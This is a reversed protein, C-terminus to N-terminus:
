GNLDGLLGSTWENSYTQTLIVAEEQIIKVRWREAERDEKARTKVDDIIWAKCWEASETLRCEKYRAIPIKYERIYETGIMDGLWQGNILKKDITVGTVTWILDTNTKTFNSTLDFKYAEINADKFTNLPITQGIYVAGAIGVMGIILILLLIKKM